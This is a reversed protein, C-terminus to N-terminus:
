ILELIQKLELILTTPASQIIDTCKVRLHPLCFSNILLETCGVVLLEQEPSVGLNLTAHVCDHITSDLTNLSLVKTSFYFRELSRTMEDSLKIM